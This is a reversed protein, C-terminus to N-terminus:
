VRYLITWLQIMEMLMCVEQMFKYQIQSLVPDDQASTDVLNYRDDQPCHKAPEFFGYGM